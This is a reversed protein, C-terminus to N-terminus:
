KKAEQLTKLLATLEGEEMLPLATSHFNNKEAVKAAWAHIKQVCEDDSVEPGYKTRAAAYILNLLNVKNNSTTAPQSYGTLNDTYVDSGIKDPDDGAPILFTRLVANKYAYTMAKGASKDQSDVGDGCSVVEIYDAPDEINVIRYTVEVSTFRNTRKGKPSEVEEDKRTRQMSVPFMVLGNKILSARVATTVKEESIAKYSKGGGADVKDDKSLYQVDDM